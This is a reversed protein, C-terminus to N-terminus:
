RWAPVTAPGSQLVRAADTPDRTLDLIEFTASGVIESVIHSITQSGGGYIVIM